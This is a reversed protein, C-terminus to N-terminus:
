SSLLRVPPEAVGQVGGLASQASVNPDNDQQFVVKHPQQNRDHISGLLAESLISGYKEGNMNGEIRYLRGLGDYSLCGWVIIHGGEHKVKKKVNKRM